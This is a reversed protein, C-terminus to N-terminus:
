FRLSISSNFALVTISKIASNFCSRLVASYLIFSAYLSRFLATSSRSSIFCLISMHVINFCHILNIYVTHDIMRKHDICYAMCEVFCIPGVDLSYVPDIISRGFSETVVVKSTAVPAILPDVKAELM